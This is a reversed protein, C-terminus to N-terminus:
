HTWVDVGFPFTRKRFSHMRINIVIHRIIYKYRLQKKTKTESKAFVIYQLVVNDPRIFASVDFSPM